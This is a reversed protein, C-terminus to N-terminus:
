MRSRSCGSAQLEAARAAVMWSMGLHACALLVEDNSGAPKVVDPQRARRAM